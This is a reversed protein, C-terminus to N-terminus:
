LSRHERVQVGYRLRLLTIILPWGNPRPLPFVAGCSQQQRGRVCGREGQEIKAVLGEMTLGRLPNAYERWQSDKGTYITLAM